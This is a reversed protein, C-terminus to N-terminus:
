ALTYKAELKAYDAKATKFKKSSVCSFLLLSASTVLVLQQLKM